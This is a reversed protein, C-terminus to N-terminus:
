VQLQALSIDGSKEFCKIIQEEREALKFKSTSSAPSKEICLGALTHDNIIILWVSADFCSLCNIPALVFYM